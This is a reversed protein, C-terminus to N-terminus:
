PSIATWISLFKWFAYLIMINRSGGTYEREHNERKLQARFTGEQLSVQGQQVIQSCLLFCHISFAHDTWYYKIGHTTRNLRIQSLIEPEARNKMKLEKADNSLNNASRARVSRLQRLFHTIPLALLFEWFFDQMKWLHFVHNDKSM